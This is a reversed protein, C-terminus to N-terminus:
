MALHCTSSRVLVLETYDEFHCPRCTTKMKLSLICLFAFLLWDVYKMPWFFFFCGARWVSGMGRGRPGCFNVPWEDGLSLKHFSNQISWSLDHSLVCQSEHVDLRPIGTGVTHYKTNCILHLITMTHTQTVVVVIIERHLLSWRLKVFKIVGLGFHRRRRGWPWIIPDLLKYLNAKSYISVCQASM